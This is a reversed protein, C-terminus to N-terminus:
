AENGEIDAATVDRDNALQEPARTAGLRAMGVTSGMLGPQERRAARKGALAASKRLTVLDPV